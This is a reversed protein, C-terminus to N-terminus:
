EDLFGQVIEGKLSTKTELKKPEGVYSIYGGSVARAKLYGSASVKAKGASNALVDAEEVQFEFGSFTAATSVKLDLKKASGKLMLISGQILESTLHDTVLKLRISGGNDLNVEMEPSFLEENSWISARGSSEIKVLDTFFVRVKLSGREYSGTKMRLSLTEDVVEAELLAPDVGTFGIELSPEKSIVLQADIESAVRLKNFPELERTIPQQGNLTLLVSMIFSIVAIIRYMHIHILTSQL